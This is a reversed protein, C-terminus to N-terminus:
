VVSNEPRSKPQNKGPPEEAVCGWDTRSSVLIGLDLVVLVRVELCLVLEFDLDDEIGLDTVWLAGETRFDGEINPTEM